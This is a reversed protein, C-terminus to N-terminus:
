APHEPNRRLSTLSHFPLAKDLHPAPQYPPYTSSTRQAQRVAKNTPLRFQARASQNPSFLECIAFKIRSKKQIRDIYCNDVLLSKAIKSPRPKWTHLSLDRIKDALLPPLRTPGGQSRAPWISPPSLQDRAVENAQSSSCNPLKSVSSFAM